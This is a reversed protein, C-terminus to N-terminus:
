SFHGIWINPKRVQASLGGPYTQTRSGNPANLLAVINEIQQFNPPQPLGKQLLQRIVRRQLALPASALKGCDVEWVPRDTASSSETIVQSYLQEAQGQLYHIDAATLDATQALAREVKPNFHQQLYPLLEQRIRNRRFRLDANSGDEWVPLQQQECFDKTEQRTFSLLPRVLEVPPERTDIPRHWPLSSLGDIGSGRILNYLVTEARDSATHGTVVYRDGQERAVQAFVGYRWERAAAESVLPSSAVSLSAPVQWQEALALVHSANDASDDRWSHDCHVLRLSWQWKVQLDILLRALCLSDQGGSVAMLVHSSIPLLNRERLLIHLKAHAQSWVM